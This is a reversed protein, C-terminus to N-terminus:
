ARTEHARLFLDVGDTVRSEIDAQLAELDLGLALRYNSLGQWLGVLQEAARDPSSVIIHGREAATALIAALNRLTMVPGQDYFRRALHPHRRLESALVNYYSAPGPSTLFTMLGIGFAVLGDRLGTSPDLPRQVMALRDMERVVTAEFLAAKDTFYSYLTVRSVQAQRAIM